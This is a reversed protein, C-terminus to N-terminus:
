PEQVLRSDWVAPIFGPAARKYPDAFLGREVLIRNATGFLYHWIQTFMDGYPVGAKVASLGALQQQIASHRQALWDTMVERSLRLVANVMGSDSATLVPVAIGWKSGSPQVYGLGRLLGVLRSVRLLSMSLRTALQTSDLTGERLTFMVRGLMAGLENM